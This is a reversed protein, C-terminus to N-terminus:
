FTRDIVEVSLGQNIEDIMRKQEDTVCQRRVDEIRSRVKEEIAEWLKMKEGFDREEIQVSVLIEEWDPVEIDQEFSARILYNENSLDLLGKVENLANNIVMRLHKDEEMKEIVEPTISLRQMIHSLFKTPIILHAKPFALPKFYSKWIEEFSIASEPSRAYRYCIFYPSLGGYSEEFLKRFYRIIDTEAVVHTEVNLLLEVKGNTVGGIFDLNKELHRELGITEIVGVSNQSM